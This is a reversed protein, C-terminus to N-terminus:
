PKVNKQTFRANFPMFSHLGSITSGSVTLPANAVVWRVGESCPPTTLSGEYQWYPGSMELLAPVGGIPFNPVKVMEGPAAPVAALFTDLWSIMSKGPANAAATSRSLFLGVVHLAAPDAPNRHVFHVEADFQNSMVHHESPAHVHFQVLSYSVGDRMIFATEAPVVVEVTRGLNAVEVEAFTQPYMFTLPAAASMTEAPTLNIPSQKTGMACTTYNPNITSWFAPGTAGEYSWDTVPAARKRLLHAYDDRSMLASALCNAHIHDHGSPARPTPHASALSALIAGALALTAVLHM